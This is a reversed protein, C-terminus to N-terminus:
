SVAHLGGGTYDLYVQRTADLRGYERQRLVAFSGDPDFDPFQVSFARQADDFRDPGYRPALDHRATTAWVALAATPETGKHDGDRATAFTTTM